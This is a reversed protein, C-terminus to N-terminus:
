RKAPPSSLARAAPMGSAVQDAREGVGVGWCAMGSRRICLGLPEGIVFPIQQLRVQRQAVSAQGIRVLHELKLLLQMEGVLHRVLWATGCWRPQGGTCVSGEDLCPGFRTHLCRAARCQVGVM